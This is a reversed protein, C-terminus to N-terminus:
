FLPQANNESKEAIFWSERRKRKKHRQDPPFNIMKIRKRGEASNAAYRAAEDAYKHPSFISSNIASPPEEGSSSISARATCCPQSHKGIVHMNLKQSTNESREFGTFVLTSGSGATCHYWYNTRTLSLSLPTSILNSNTHTHTNRKWVNSKCLLSDKILVYTTWTKESRWCFCLTTKPVRSQWMKMKDSARWDTGWYQGRQGGKEQGGKAEGGKRWELQRRM